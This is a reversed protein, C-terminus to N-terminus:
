KNQLTIGVPSTHTHSRSLSKIKDELLVEAVLAPETKIFERLIRQHSTFELGTVITALQAKLQSAM